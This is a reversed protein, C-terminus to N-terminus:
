KTDKVARLAILMPQPDGTKHWVDWPANYADCRRGLAHKLPCTECKVCEMSAESGEPEAYWICLACTDGDTDVPLDEIDNGAAIWAAVGEWKLLPHDVAGEEPCDAAAVPYYKAFFEENTM